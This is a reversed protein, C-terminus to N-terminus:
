TPLGAAARRERARTALQACLARELEFFAEPTTVAVPRAGHRGAFAVAGPGHLHLAEVPRTDHPLTAFEMQGPMTASGLQVPTSEFRRMGDFCTVIAFRPLALMDRTFARWSHLLTLWRALGRGHAVWVQVMLFGDDSVLVVSYNVRQSERQFTVLERFGLDRFAARLPALKREVWAPLEGDGFVHFRPVELDAIRRRSRVELWSRLRSSLWLVLAIAVLAGDLLRPTLVFGSAFPSV